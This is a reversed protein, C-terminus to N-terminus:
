RAHKILIWPKVSIKAHSPMKTKFKLHFTIVSQYKMSDNVDSSTSLFLQVKIITQFYVDLQM